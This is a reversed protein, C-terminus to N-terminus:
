SYKQKWESIFQETSNIDWNNNYDIGFPDPKSLYGLGNAIGRMNNAHNTLKTELERIKNEADIMSNLQTAQHSQLDGIQRAQMEVVELLSQVFRSPDEGKLKQHFDIKKSLEKFLGNEVGQIVFDIKELTKDSPKQLVAPSNDNM